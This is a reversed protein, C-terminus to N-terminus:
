GNVYDRLAGPTRYTPHAGSLDKAYTVLRSLSPGKPHKESGFM